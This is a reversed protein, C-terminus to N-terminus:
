IVSKGKPVIGITSGFEIVGVIQKNLRSYYMGESNSIVNVDREEKDLQICLAVRKNEGFEYRGEPMITYKEELQDDVIMMFYQKDKYEFLGRIRKKQKNFEEGEFKVSIVIWDVEIMLISCNIDDSEQVPVIDNQGNDSNCGDIWIENVDTDFFDEIFDENLVGSLKWRPIYMKNEVQHGEIAPKGIEMEVIDLKTPLMPYCKTCECECERLCEDKKTLSEDKKDSVIRIWEKTELDKGIFCSGFTKKYHGFCVVDRRM